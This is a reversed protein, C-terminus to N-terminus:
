EATAQEDKRTSGIIRSLISMAQLSNGRGNMLEDPAIQCFLEAPWFIRGENFDRTFDKIINVKQLFRGNALAKERDLEIGDKAKVLETLYKGVTGAVFYCYDDLDEFSQIKKEQYLMMGRAMESLCDFACQKVTDDFSRFTEVIPKFNDILALDHEDIVKRRVTDILVTCDCYEGNIVKLFDQTLQKKDCISHRSDEITDIFRALLYQNEVEIRKNSDLLPICVAFSRSVVQLIDSASLNKFAM